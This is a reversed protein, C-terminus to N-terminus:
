GIVRVASAYVVFFGTFSRSLEDADAGNLIPAAKSRHFERNQWM